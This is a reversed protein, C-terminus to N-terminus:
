AQGQPLRHDPVDEQPRGGRFRATARGQNNRGGTSRLPEILSREPRTKTIEAFSAVTKYRLTPTTPKFRKVAM